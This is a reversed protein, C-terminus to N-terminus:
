TTDEQAVLDKQRFGANSDITIKSDAALVKGEKTLVLPNIEVMDCDKAMFCEYIKSFVTVVQDAQASLGLNAAAERIKAENLGEKVPVPLKFIKEPNSAAVDEISMGGAPSYIFTPCGAKRDLTLSLYMEKAINIKEVLYVANCPLGDAGSQHTVLTKGLMENAIAKAQDANDVLHVGGQFGTEKFHGLGRGGGLVQSKVVMGNKIGSAIKHAETPTFAVNGVPIPVHFSNLLAGAQYEHLKLRRLPLSSNKLLARNCLRTSLMM